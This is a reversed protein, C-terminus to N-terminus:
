GARALDDAPQAEVVVVQVHPDPLAVPENPKWETGAIDDVGDRVVVLEVGAVTHVVPRNGATGARVVSEISIRQWEIRGHLALLLRSALPTASVALSTDTRKRM